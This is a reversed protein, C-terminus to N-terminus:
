NRTTERTGLKYPSNVNVLPLKMQNDLQRGQFWTRGDWGISSMAFGFTNALMKRHKADTSHCSHSKSEKNYLRWLFYFIAMWPRLGIRDTMIQGCHLLPCKKKQLSRYDINLHYYSLWRSVLVGSVIKSQLRLSFLCLYSIRKNKAVNKIIRINAYQM